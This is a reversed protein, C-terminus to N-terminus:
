DNRRLIQLAGSILAIAHDVQYIRSGLSVGTFGNDELTSCEFDNWGKEPGAAVMCYAEAEPRYDALTKAKGTHGFIKFVHGTDPVLGPLIDEIFPKFRSHVSVKPPLTDGTQELGKILAADISEKILATSQLYSKETRESRVFHIENVGISAGLFLIRKVLQPRPVAIIWASRNRAPPAETFVTELEITSRSVRAVKVRGRKGGLVGGAIEQGARLRHLKLVAKAREDALIANGSNDIEDPFLILSNM